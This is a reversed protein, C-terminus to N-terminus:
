KNEEEHQKAIALFEKTMKKDLKFDVDLSFHNKFADIFNLQFFYKSGDNFHLSYYGGFIKKIKIFETVHYYEKKRFQRRVEFRKDYENYVVECMMYTSFVFYPYIISLFLFIRFDRQIIMGIIFCIIIINVFIFVPEFRAPYNSIFKM